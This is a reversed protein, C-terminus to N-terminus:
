RGRDLLLRGASLLEDRSLGKTPDLELVKAKLPSDKLAAPYLATFWSSFATMEHSLPQGRDRWGKCCFILVYDNLREDFLEVIGDPDEDAHKSFNAWKNIHKKWVVRQYEPLILDDFHFHFSGGKRKSLDYLVHLAAMALTHISILDGGRFLLDIATNIQREAVNLKTLGTTPSSM